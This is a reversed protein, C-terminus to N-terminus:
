DEEKEPSTLVYVTDLVLSKAAEIVRERTVGSLRMAYQAPDDIKNKLVCDLYWREMGRVTDYISNANNTVTLKAINVDEDTFDGSKILELQRLIEERAKDINDNEVGCDVLMLGKESDYSASCYYCLSLKERVNAFLKSSPTGGYIKQLLSLADKDDSTTKFGIVMKSQNVPLRETKYLPESKPTSRIIDTMVPKRQVTSFADTLKQEVLSFDGRGVCMIECRMTGLVKLYADYIKQPTLARAGEVTGNAFYQAPEGSCLLSVAKSIAYSRKDNILEEISDIVTQKELETTKEPFAGNETIPSFICDILMDTLLETLNEGDLAFVDDLFQATMGVCQYDYKKYYHPEVSSGYLRLLRNKLQKYTPYRSNSTTLICFAAANAPADAENLETYFNVSVRHFKYRDDNVTSFYVGPAIEKRNIPNDM